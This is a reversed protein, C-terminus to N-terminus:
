KPCVVIVFPRVTGNDHIAVVYCAYPSAITYTSIPMLCVCVISGRAFTCRIMLFKINSKICSKTIYTKFNTCMIWEVIRFLQEKTIDLFLISAIGHKIWRKHVIFLMTYIYLFKYIYNFRIFCWHFSLIADICPNLHLALIIKGTQQTFFNSQVKNYIHQYLNYSFYVVSISRHLNGLNISIVNGFM